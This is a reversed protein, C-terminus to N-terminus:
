DLTFAHPFRRQLGENRAASSAAPKELGESALIARTARATPTGQGKSADPASGGKLIDDAKSGALSLLNSLENLNREMSRLKAEAENRERELLYVRGVAEDLRRLLAGQYLDAKQSSVVGGLGVAAVLGILVWAWTPEEGPRTQTTFSNDASVAQNNSGDVAIVRYHYTMGAELGALEATHSNVMGTDMTAILGYQATPGYEVQCTAPENTTWAITAGSVTIDSTTVVSISPATTDSSTVVPVAPPTSADASGTTFTLDHGHVAGDGVVKVRFHYTTNASIGTLIASLDGTGSISQPSTEAGYGTTTGWEFSVTVRGATGLSTLTANLRASNATVSSADNTAAAPPSATTTFRNEAGYSTGDGEAKARYYYTTGPTLRDLDFSFSDADMMVRGATENLYPGGTTTGWEFSVTVRGATGLSTLTGDLRASNTTVSSDDDTLVSPPTAASTTFTVDNGYIASDGTARARFHYTTSVGLGTLSYNFSGPGSMSQPATEYGYSATLGWEFSVTASTATGLSVLAGNLTASSAALNTADSTTVTPPITSTTFTTDSGLATGNGVARARFHYTTKTTLGTLDYSFSGPGSMSQATTEHGYAATLGWEFSVNTNTAAGLASLTGNLTASTNDLNTANNTTVTPPTGTTSFTMDSGPTTGNGVARARFHYTTKATLGTLDYSFSGPESMSQPTTEHGYSTTLGWEFSVQVSPSTGRSALYGNLTASILSMNTAAETAATPISYDVGAPTDSTVKVLGIRVEGFNRSYAIVPGGNSWTPYDVELSWPHTHGALQGWLRSAYARTQTTGTSDVYSYYTNNTFSSIEDLESSTFTMTGNDTGDGTMPHHSLLIVDRSSEPNQQVYQEMHQRFWSWTGGSFDHLEGARYGLRSNFDLWVFHFGGYDFFFNEFYTDREAEPDYVLAPSQKGWGSMQTALSSYEPGIISDFYSEPPPNGLPSLQNDTMPWTDHNGMTPIWPVTLNDLILKAARLESAEASDTLDGLVAVFAINQSDAIKNIETVAAQAYGAAEGSVPTGSDNYGPEGYDSIGNGIHLDTLVAFTWSVYFATEAPTPDVNGAQDRAQVTFIYSGGRLDAYHKTTASAWDSWGTDYGQLNFSYELQSAPTTDDWGTWSFTVDRYDVTGSPGATIQTNPPSTDQDGYVLSRTFLMPLAVMVVTLLTVLFFFSRRAGM